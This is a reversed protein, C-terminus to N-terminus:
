AEEDGVDSGVSIAARFVNMAQATDLEDDIYPGDALAVSVQADRYAQSTLVNYPLSPRYGDVYFGNFDVPGPRHVGSFRDLLARELRPHLDYARLLTADISQQLENCKQALISTEEGESAFLNASRKAKSAEKIWEVRISEYERVLGVIISADGTTLRPIPIERITGIRVHRKLEREAIFANAVPGNLIAALLEPAVSERPWAGIFNQYFVLNRRDVVAAIVWADRSLRNFNLIVKAGGRITGAARRLLRADVSLFDNPRAVYPEFTQDINGLGAAFNPKPTASRVRSDAAGWPRTYELGRELHETLEGFKPLHSLADWVRRMPTRWLEDTRGSPSKSRQFVERWSTNGRKLFQAEDGRRVQAASRYNPTGPLGVATVVVIEVDAHQFTSDPLELVRIDAYTEDLLRRADRYRDTHMFAAPLVLGLLSPPNTLIRRVAELAKPTAATRGAPLTESYPPNCLVVNARKLQVDFAASDFVDGQLINWGNGYPYDALVLAQQAVEAAFADLEMGWLNQLLYEHRARGDMGQPLLAKLQGMAATLFPAHGAFPEFVRRENLGLESLPLQSLIYDAVEPPTAHIDLARRTDRSVLTNEYVYALAEGSVHSLNIGQRLQKWVANQVAKDDLIAAGKAGSLFVRRVEDLAHEADTFVQYGPYDRDGLIKAILLRFTLRYLGHLQDYSLRQSARRRMSAMGANLVDRLLQDLKTRVDAELVPVLGIDFFDFQRPAEPEGIMKARLVSMPNLRDRHDVFWASLDGVSDMHQAAGAATMRWVHARPDGESVSCIVPAGLGRYGAIANADPEREVIAICATRYSTPEQAFAVLRASRITNTVDDQLDTYRYDRRILERRYEIALLAREMSASWTEDFTM